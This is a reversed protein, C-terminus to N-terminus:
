HVTIAIGSFYPFGLGLDCSRQWLTERAATKWAIRKTTLLPVADDSLDFRMAPGFLSRTGVGTRDRREDGREWVGRLLALYQDEEYRGEVMM